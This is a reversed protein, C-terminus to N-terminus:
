LCHMNLQMQLKKEKKGSKGMIHSIDIPEKNIHFYCSDARKKYCIIQHIYLHM